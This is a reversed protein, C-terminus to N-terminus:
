RKPCEGTSLVSVGASAAECANGYTHGDCGCMPDYQETCGDPRVKCTGGQDGSGCQTAIDFDCFQNEDPCAIAAIGGCTTPAADCEGEAAVSVGHANADCANGYTKDDCGCVPRYDKTCGDPIAECSGTQDAAGCRADPAFNCFEGDGCETGLLGGCTDGPAADCEGDKQVSVGDLNADCANGYTKGDCGCVPDYVTDCGDPVPACNGTADAFGCIADPAFNCFQDAPCQSGRLGGCVAGPQGGVGGSGGSAPGGGTATNGSAGGTAPGGGTAMGGGAGGTAPGGGTATGGSAGGSAPGGGTAHAGGTGPGGGTMGDTGAEGCADGQCAGDDGVVAHTCGGKAGLALPALVLVAISAVSTLDRTKNSM